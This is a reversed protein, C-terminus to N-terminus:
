TFPVHNVKISRLTLSLPGNAQQLKGACQILCPERATQQLAKSDGGTPIRCRADASIFKFLKTSQIKCQLM